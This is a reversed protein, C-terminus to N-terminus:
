EKWKTFKKNRPVSEGEQVTEKMVDGVESEEGGSNGEEDSEGQIEVEERDEGEGKGTNVALLRDVDGESLENCDM